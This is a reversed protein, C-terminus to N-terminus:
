ERDRLVVRSVFEFEVMMFVVVGNFVQFCVGNFDGRLVVVIVDRFCNFFDSDDCVVIKKVVGNFVYM